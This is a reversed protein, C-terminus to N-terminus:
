DGFAIGFGVLFTPDITPAPTTSRAIVDESFPRALQLQIRLGYYPHGARNTLTLGGEFGVDPRSRIGLEDISLTEIGVGAALWVDLRELRARGGHPGHLVQTQILDLRGALAVRLENGPSAVPDTSDDERQLHFMEVEGLLAVRERELAIHLHAGFAGHAEGHAQVFGATPAAEVEWRPRPDPIPGSEDPAGHATLALGMVILLARM